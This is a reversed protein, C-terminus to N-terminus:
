NSIDTSNTEGFGIIRDYRGGLERYYVLVKYNNETQWYNGSIEGEDLEGNEAVTVYKYNYFGQKLRLAAEYVGREDNYKMLNEDTIAYNNYNGYVYVKKGLFENSLLSFHVWAYDAQVRPDETDIATVVFNGNIDPNFTYPRDKRIINTFLFSNYLDRLEIFQM